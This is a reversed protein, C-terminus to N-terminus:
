GKRNDTSGHHGGGLGRPMAPRHGNPLHDPADETIEATKLVHSILFMLGSGILVSAFVTGLLFSALHM